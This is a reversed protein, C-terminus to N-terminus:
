AFAATSSVGGGFPSRGSNSYYSNGLNSGTQIVDDAAFEDSPGPGTEEDLELGADIYNLSTVPLEPSIEQLLTTTTGTAATPKSKSNTLTTM